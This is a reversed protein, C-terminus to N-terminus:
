RAVSASLSVACSGGAGIKCQGRVCTANPTVPGSCDADTDCGSGLSGLTGCIGAPDTANNKGPWQGFCYGGACGDFPAGMGSYRLTIDADGLLFNDYSYSYYDDQGSM